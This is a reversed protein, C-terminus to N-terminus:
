RKSLFTIGPRNWPQLSSASTTVAPDYTVAAREAALNVAANHVGAVNKIAREIRNVCSACHMGQVPLSLQKDAM